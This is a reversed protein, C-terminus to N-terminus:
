VTQQMLRQGQLVQAHYIALALADSADFPGTMPGLRLLHQV